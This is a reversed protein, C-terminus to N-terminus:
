YEKVNCVKEMYAVYLQDLTTFVRDDNDLYLVVLPDKWGSYIDGYVKQKTITEKQIGLEENRHMRHAGWDYRMGMTYTLPYKCFEEFTLEKFQKTM